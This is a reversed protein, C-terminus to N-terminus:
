PAKARQKAPTPVSVECGQKPQCGQEVWQSLVSVVADARAKQALVLATQGAKTTAALDAGAELLLLVHDARRGSAAVHLPTAGRNDSAAVDAGAELLARLPRADRNKAALHLPTAGWKNKRNLLGPDKELLATLEKVTGAKAVDHVRHNGLTAVSAPVDGVSPQAFPVAALTLAFLAPLRRM